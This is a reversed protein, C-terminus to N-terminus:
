TGMGRHSVSVLHSTFVGVGCTLLLLAFDVSMAGEQEWRRGWKDSKHCAQLTYVAVRALVLSQLRLICRAVARNGVSAQVDWQRDDSPSV